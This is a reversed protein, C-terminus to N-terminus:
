VLVVKIYNIGIRETIELLELCDVRSAITDTTCYNRGNSRERLFRVVRQLVEEWMPTVILSVESLSALVSEVYSNGTDGLNCKVHDGEKIIIRSALTNTSYSPLLSVQFYLVLYALPRARMFSDAQLHSEQVGGWQDYWYWEYDCTVPDEERRCEAIQQTNEDPSRGGHM